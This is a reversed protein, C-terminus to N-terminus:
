AKTSKWLESYLQYKCIKWRKMAKILPHMNESIKLRENEFM